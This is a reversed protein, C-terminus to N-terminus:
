DDDDVNELGLRKKDEEFCQDQLEDGTRPWFEKVLKKQIGKKFNLLLEKMENFQERLDGLEAFYDKTLEQIEQKLRQSPDITLLPIAKCFEVLM